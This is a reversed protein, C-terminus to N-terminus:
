DLRLVLVLADEVPHSYYNRRRGQEAFGSSLYFGRAGVNSERVELYVRKVDGRRGEEMARELLWAAIRQRRADPDVALNLIEMEDAVARVLILGLVVGERAAVFGTAGNTVTDRYGAEGWRAAGVCRSELEALAEADDRHLPRILFDASPSGM